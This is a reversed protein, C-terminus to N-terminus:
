DKVVLINRSEERTASAAEVHLLISGHLSSINQLAVSTSGAPMMELQRLCERGTEDYGTLTVTVPESLSLGIRGQERIPNPYASLESMLATSPQEGVGMNLRVPAMNYFLTVLYEYGWLQNQLLSVKFISDRKMDGVVSDLQSMPRIWVATVGAPIQAPDWFLHGSSFQFKVGMVYNIAFSDATPKHRIDIRTSSDGNASYLFFLDPYSGISGPYEADEGFQADYGDSAKADYGIARLYPFEFGEGHASTDTYHIDLRFEPVLTSQADAHGVFLVTALLSFFLANFTKM